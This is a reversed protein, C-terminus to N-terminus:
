RAAPFAAALEAPSPRNEPQRDLCRQLLTVIHTPLDPRLKALDPTPLQLGQWVATVPPISFPMRGTLIEFAIVGVSFVDSAAPAKRSGQALEPAMYIPTGILVGTQTLAGADSAAPGRPVSSGPATAPDSVAVDLTSDTDLDDLMRDISAQSIRPGGTAVRPAAPDGAIGLTSIGFDAIKVVPGADTQSLLINAPKLDRHVVGQAHIAALGQCIQRLVSWVFDLDGYRDRADKLTTGQVLEMVLFLRSDQLIDIDSITVLNPHKLQALIRAERVFRIMVSRDSGAAILKAALHMGDTIREVEYVSGMAGQGLPCVVRYRDALLEGAALPHAVPALDGSRSNTLLEIMRDSRQEIQRRLEDNLTQIEANNKELTRVQESLLASYQVIRRQVDMFRRILILLLSLFFIMVAYQLLALHTRPIWLGGLALAHPILLVAALALGASLLRGDIDRVMAVRVAFVAIILCGGICLVNMTVILRDLLRPDYVVCALDAALGLTLAYRTWRVYKLAAHNFVQEIFACSFVLTLPAGLTFLVNTPPAPRVLLGLLGTSGALYISTGFSVLAFYLLSRDKRTVLFLMGVAIGSLAGILCLLLTVAAQRLLEPVMAAREGFYVPALVGIRPARSFVHLTLTRGQYAADLRVLYHLIHSRRAEWAHHPLADIPVQRGDLYAQPSHGALRLAMMPDSLAPGELRVRIWLEPDGSAMPPVGPRASSQWAGDDHGPQAWLWTGDARQPSSGVRYQWQGMFPRVRWLDSEADPTAASPGGCAALLMGLVLLVHFRALLHLMRGSSWVPVWRPLGYQIWLDYVPRPGVTWRM